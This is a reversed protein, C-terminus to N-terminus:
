ITQNIVSLFLSLTRPLLPPLSPLYSDFLILSSKLLIFLFLPGVPCFSLSLTSPLFFVILLCFSLCVSMYVSLGLDQNFSHCVPYSYLHSLNIIFSCTTHYLHYIKSTRKGRTMYRTDMMYM